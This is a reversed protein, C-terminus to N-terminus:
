KKYFLHPKIIGNQLFIFTLIDVSMLVGVASVISLWLPMAILVIFFCLSILAVPITVFKFVISPTLFMKVNLATILKQTDAKPFKKTLDKLVKDHAEFVGKDKTEYSFYSIHQDLLYLAEKTQQDVTREQLM